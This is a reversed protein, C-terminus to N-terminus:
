FAELNITLEVDEGVVVGGAEVAKNWTLGWDTRDIKGSSELGYRMNGWPDKVPGVLKYELTISKTVGHMTLDGKLSRKGIETTKFTIEPNKEVDFFDANRLHDDRKKIRTNISAADIKAEAAILDNGDVTLTGTFADFTGKTKSVVMHSVRFGIEAHTDDIKLTKQEAHLHCSVAFICASILTTATTRM